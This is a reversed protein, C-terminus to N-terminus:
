FVKGLALEFRKGEPTFGLHATLLLQEESLFRLGLGHGPAWRSFRLETESAFSQGADLFYFADWSVWVPYRYEASLAAAGPARFRLRRYGRLRNENDLVPYAFFPPRRAGLGRLREWSGRLALVRGPAFLPLLVTGDFFHRAYGHEGDASAQAELEAALRAGRVAREGGPAADWELRLGAGGLRVRRSLGTLGGPPELGGAGISTEGDDAAGFLAARLSGLRRERWARGRLRTLAHSRRDEPATDWGLRPGDRAYLETDRDRAFDLEAGGRRPARRPGAARLGAFLRDEGATTFSAQVKGGEGLLDDHFVLLGAGRGSSTSAANPFWGATRRENFYFLDELRELLAHRQAFDLAKGVPWWPLELIRGPLGLLREARRWQAADACSPLLIASAM